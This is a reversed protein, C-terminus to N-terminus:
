ARKAKFIINSSNDRLTMAHPGVTYMSVTNEMLRAMEKLQEANNCSSWNPSVNFFKISMGKVTYTGSVDGCDTSAIFKGDSKITLSINSLSEEPLRAQRQMTLLNWSGLMMPLNDKADVQIPVNVFVVSDAPDMATTTTTTTTTTVVVPQTAKKTSSCATFFAAALLPLYKKM